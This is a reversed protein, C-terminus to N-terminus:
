ADDGVRRPQVRARLRDRLAEAFEFYSDVFAADHPCSEVDEDTIEWGGGEVPEADPQARTPREPYLAYVGVGLRGIAQEATPGFVVRASLGLSTSADPTVRLLFAPNDEVPEDDTQPPDHQAELAERIAQHPSGSHTTCVREREPAEPHLYTIPEGPGDQRFTYGAIRIEAM